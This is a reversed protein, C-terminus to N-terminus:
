EAPEGMMELMRPGAYFIPGCNKGKTKRLWGDALLKRLAYHPSTRQKFGFKLVMDAATLGEEPNGAMYAVIPIVISNPSSRSM